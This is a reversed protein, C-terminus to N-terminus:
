VGTVGRARLRGRLRAEVRSLLEFPWLRWPLERTQQPPNGDTGAIRHGTSTSRPEPLWVKEEPTRRRDPGRYSSM